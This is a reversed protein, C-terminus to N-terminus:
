STRSSTKTSSKVPVPEVPEEPAKLPTEAAVDPAVPILADSPDKIVSGAYNGAVKRALELDHTQFAVNGEGGNTVVRYLTRTDSTGAVYPASPGNKRAVSGGCSGCAM